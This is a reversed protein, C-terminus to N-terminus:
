KQDHSTKPKKKSKLNKKFKLFVESQTSDILLEAGNEYVLSIKKVHANRMGDDSLILKALINAKYHTDFADWLKVTKAEKEEKTMEM